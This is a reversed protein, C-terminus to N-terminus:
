VWTEKVGARRGRQSVTNASRPRQEVRAYDVSPRGYYYGQGYKIGLSQLLAVQEEDEVHEAIVGMGLKESLEVVAHLMARDRESSCAARVFKGDIKAYNAGLDFLSQLSTGGAGVDDICVQHGMERLLAIHEKIKNFDRINATETLEFMLSKAVDAYPEMVKRLQEMFLPSAMSKASFNIAITPSWGALKHTRLADLVKQTLALDFDEILGVEESFTIFEAPSSMGIVRSLAEFHHVSDKNMDVIPQFVVDFNRKDIVERVSQVRDAVDKLIQSAGEQLSSMSINPSDGECFKRISYALAKSADSEHLGGTELPLSFTVAKPAGGEPVAEEMIQQIRKNIEEQPVSRDHVVGFKNEKLEGAMSGGVSVSRLYDAIKKLIQGVIQDGHTKRLEELGDVLLYTVDEQSNLQESAELRKRASETFTDRDQLSNPSDVDAPDGADPLHSFALYMRGPRNPLSCGGMTFWLYGGRRSELRIRVPNLRGVKALRKFVERFYGRDPKAIFQPFKEGTLTEADGNVLGCSAGTAYSVVGDAGVELLLHAAAFAFAVFRDRAEKANPTEVVTATDAAGM